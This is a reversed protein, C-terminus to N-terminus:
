EGVLKDFIGLPTVFGGNGANGCFRLEYGYWDQINEEGVLKDFIGLPTVFGQDGRERLVEARIRVLRTYKIRRGAQRFDRATYRFGTGV